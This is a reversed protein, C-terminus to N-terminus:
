LNKAQFKYHGLFYELVFTVFIEGRRNEFIRFSMKKNLYSLIEHKHRTYTWKAFYESVLYVTKHCFLWLNRM